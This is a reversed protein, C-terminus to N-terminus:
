EAATKSIPTVRWARALEEDTAPPNDADAEAAAEIQEDTLADIKEWDVKDLAKDAAELQEKTPM